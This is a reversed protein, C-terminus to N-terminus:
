VLENRPKRREEERKGQTPEHNNYINFRLGSFLVFFILLTQIFDKLREEIWIDIRRLLESFLCPDMLLTIYFFTIEARV